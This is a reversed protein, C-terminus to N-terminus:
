SEVVHVSGWYRPRFSPAALTGPEPLDADHERDSQAEDHRHQVHGHHVDRECVHLWSRPKWFGFIQFPYQLKEVSIVWIEFIASNEDDIVFSIECADPEDALFIRLFFGASNKPSYLEWLLMVSITYRFFVFCGFM